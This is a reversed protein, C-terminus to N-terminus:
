VPSSILERAAGVVEDALANKDKICGDERDVFIRVADTNHRFWTLQRKAYRRSALKIAEAAEGLSCEGRLYGAMEKYGIAQSATLEPALMGSGCLARVEAELGERLMLGVREDVRRYLNERDHFDLTIMRISIDKPAERTLSDFHTKTKGTLEYIEIARVVRRLNNAHVVAACDPDVANLREWLAVPDARGEEELRSRLEPDSPPSIQAGRMLTDIYLGTGGVFLPLRGRATIDGAVRLADLRYDEASYRELPTLIDILHHKVQAQEEETAKATGIDMGRYIQMSDCSIIECDLERSVALSLATKGSATPGTIALARIM